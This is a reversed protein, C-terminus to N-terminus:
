YLTINPTKTVDTGIRVLEYWLTLFVGGSCCKNNSASKEDGLIVKKM